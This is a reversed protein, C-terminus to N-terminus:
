IFNILIFVFVGWRLIGLLVLSLCGRGGEGWFTALRPEILSMFITHYVLCAGLAILVATGSKYKNGVLFMALFTSATALSMSRNM